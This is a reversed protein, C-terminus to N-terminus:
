YVRQAGALDAGAVTEGAGHGWAGPVKRSFGRLGFAPAPHLAERLLLFLVERRQGHELARSRSPGSRFGPRAPPQCLSLVSTFPALKLAGRDESRPSWLCGSLREPGWHGRKWRPTVM